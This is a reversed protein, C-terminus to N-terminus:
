FREIHIHNVMDEAIKRTTENRIRFLVFHRVRVPSILVAAGTLLLGIKVLDRSQHFRRMAEIVWERYGYNKDDLHNPTM